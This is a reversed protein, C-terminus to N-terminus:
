HELRFEIGYYQSIYKTAYPTDGLGFKTKAQYEKFVVEDAGERKKQEITIMRDKWIKDITNIDNYADYFSFAFVIMCYLIVSLQIKKLFLYEYNLNYLLIGFIIINFTIPGFWTRPPFGPSAVMIYISILTAAAYILIYPIVRTMSYSKYKSPLLPLIIIGLNLIGLYNIFNHTATLARYVVLFPSISTGEARVFNGPASIMVVYGIIAGVLGSYAWFPISYEKYKYYVLFLIISVIMAAATNENTWGAIIGCIFMAIITVVNRIGSKREGERHLRYPLLFLLIILSGWLYNASGTIWLTTEAFTPQLLWTLFFSISLIGISSKNHGVIHKHMVYIYCTFAISNIIDIIVVSDTLLLLQGIFHVVSRGGWTFYHHYQSEFIDTISSLRDSTQYLFSYVFDDGILPTKHNLYFIILFIISLFIYFINNHTNKNISMYNQFTICNREIHSYKTSIIKFFANLIFKINM